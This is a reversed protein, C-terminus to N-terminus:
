SSLRTSVDELHLVRSSIVNIDTLRIDLNTMDEWFLLSSAVYACLYLALLLISIFIFFHCIEAARWEQLFSTM